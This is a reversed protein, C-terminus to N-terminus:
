RQRPSARKQKSSVAKAKGGEHGWVRDENAAISTMNRGTAVSLPMEELVDYEALPRAEDDREKFLLWQKGSPQRGGTRALMWGGRLKQGDFKFKLKGSAYGQQADGIPEWDGHDWLMVTGGGYEGQPIIGEFSGYEVPHDEVHMALRKVKPDLCPGKPVAWSK